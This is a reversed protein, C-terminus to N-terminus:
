NFVAPENSRARNRARDMTGNFKAEVIDVFAMPPMLAREKQFQRACRRLEKLLKDTAMPSPEATKPRVGVFNCAGSAFFVSAAAKRDV